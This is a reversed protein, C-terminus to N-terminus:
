SEVLIRVPAISVGVFTEKEYSANPPSSLPHNSRYSTSSPHNTTKDYNYLSYSKPVSSKANTEDLLVDLVSLPASPCTFSSNFLETSPLPQDDVNLLTRTPQKNMKFFQVEAHLENTSYVVDHSFIPYTSNGFSPLFLGFCLFVAFMTLVNFVSPENWAFPSDNLLADDVFAQDNDFSMINDHVNVTPPPSSPTEESDSTVSVSLFHDIDGTDDTSPTRPTTNTSSSSDPNECQALSLLAEKLQRNEESLFYNTQELQKVQTDLTEVRVKLEANENSLQELKTEMQGVHEKKKNRSTQAYERNKILRRQKKVKKLEETSLPTEKVINQVYEEFEKSTFRLLDDRSLLRTESSDGSNRRRRKRQGMTTETENSPQQLERKPPLPIPFPLPLYSPHISLPIPTPVNLMM